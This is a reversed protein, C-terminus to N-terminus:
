AAFAGCAARRLYRRTSVFALVVRAPRKYVAVIQAADDEKDRRLQM